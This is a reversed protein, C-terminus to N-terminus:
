TSLSRDWHSLIRQVDWVHHTGDHANNRAVDEARQIGRAAHRLVVQHDLAASVSEVWADVAGRLSWLAAAPAIEDYRRARALLDQDYGPVHDAGALRAGALREAWNRLNDTVHSVYAAPTWALEPHRESGTRGELLVSFRGPLEEVQRIAEYPTLSWVYGCDRCPDGYLNAGWPEM